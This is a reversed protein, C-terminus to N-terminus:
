QAGSFVFDNAAQSAHCSICAPRLSSLPAGSADFAEFRWDGTSLDDGTGTPGKLMVATFGEGGEAAIGEVPFAAQHFDAVFLSGVPFPRTETALANLAANNLYISDFTNGFIEAPLGIATAGEPTIVTASRWYLKNRYDPPLFVGNDSAPVAHIERENLVSFVFDNAEQSQHCAFCTSQLSTIEQRDPGFAAFGWGGSDAFRDSDKEMVAVFALDGPQDLGEAPHTLRFFPAVFVAGDRFPRTDNRLDNLAVQNAFVADFTEGFVDAPLGIAAAGEATISKSGVHYWFRYDNPLSVGSPEGQASVAALQMAFLMMAVLGVGLVALVIRLAKQNMM